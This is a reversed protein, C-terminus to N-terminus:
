AQPRSREDDSETVPKPPSHRPEGRILLRLSILLPLGVVVLPAVALMTSVLGKTHAQTPQALTSVRAALALTADEMRLTRGAEVLATNAMTSAVGRLSALVGLDVITLAGRQSTM